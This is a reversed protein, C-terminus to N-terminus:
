VARGPRRYLEAHEQPEASSAAPRAVQSVETERKKRMFLHSEQPSSNGVCIEHTEVERQVGNTGDGRNAGRLM